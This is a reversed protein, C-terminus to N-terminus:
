DNQIIGIGKATTASGPSSLNVYFFEDPENLTDGIVRVVVTQNTSGGPQFLLNDVLPEYDIDATATLDSTSVHVITDQTAPSSLTVTFVANVTGGNGEIVAADSISFAPGSDDDLITGLGVASVLTANVPNSLNVIFTEDSEQLTDGKVPVTITRSTTGPPFTLTG